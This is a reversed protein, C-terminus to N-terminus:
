KPTAVVAAPPAPAGPFSASVENSNTLSAATVTGVTEVAGVTYFFTQPSNTLMVPDVFTLLTIPTSNIPTSSEGGATTSRFVNYGFTCPPVATSSCAAASTSASWTLTVNHGGTIQARVRFPLAPHAAAGAFFDHPLAHATGAFGLILAVALFFRKM